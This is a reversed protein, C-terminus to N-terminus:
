LGDRGRPDIWGITLEDIFVNVDDETADYRIQASTNTRVHVRGGASEHNSADSINFTFVRTGAGIAPAEATQDPSEIVFSKEVSDGGEDSIVWDTIAIVKIGTPVLLTPTQVEDVMTAAVDRSKAAWLVEDGHQSFQLNTGTGRRVSLVRRPAGYNTAAALLNVATLSTDFGADVRGTTNHRIAFFHYWTGNTLTLANPFGGADTGEAWNADIRKTIPTASHLTQTDGDDRAVGRSMTIDNTTDTPGNSLIFGSIYGMPVEPYSLNLVPNGISDSSLYFHSANVKLSQKNTYSNLALPGAESIDLTGVGLEGGDKLYYAEAVVKNSVLLEDDIVVQGTFSRIIIDNGSKYIEGGSGSELYFAEAEVIDSFRGTKASHISKGGMNLNGTMARTGNVLLYQTHDDASLGTLDAHSSVLPAGAAATLVAKGAQVESFYFYVINPDAVYANDPAIAKGQDDYINWLVDSNDFNHDCQWEVVASNFEFTKTVGGVFNTFEGDNPGSAIFFARGDVPETFYFFAVDPNSFDVVDPYILRDDNDFVQAILLTSNQGHAVQWEVDPAGQTFIFGTRIPDQPEWQGTAGNYGLQSGSQPSPADVDQLDNLYMVAGGAGGATNRWIKNAADFFLTHGQNPNIIEVDILDNLYFIEPLLTIFANPHARCDPIDEHAEIYFFRHDFVLDANPRLVRTSAPLIDTRVVLYFPDRPRISAAGTGGTAIIASGVLNSSFYFYTINPDSVDVRDPIVINDDSDMAQAMVPSANFGHVVVWEEGSTEFVQARGFPATFTVEPSGSHAGCDIIQVKLGSDADFLIRDTHLVTVDETTPTGLSHSDAVMFLKEDTGYFGAASTVGGVSVVQFQGDHRRICWVDNWEPVAVTGNNVQLCFEQTDEKYIVRYSNSFDLDGYQDGLRSRLANLEDVGTELQQISNRVIAKTEAQNSRIEGWQLNLAKSDILPWPSYFNGLRDPM